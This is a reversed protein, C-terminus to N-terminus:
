RTKKMTRDPLVIDDQHFFVVDCWMMKYYLSYEFYRKYQCDKKCIANKKFNFKRFEGLVLNLMKYYNANKPGKITFDNAFM